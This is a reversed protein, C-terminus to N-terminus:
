AAPVARRLANLLSREAVPKGINEAGALIEGGEIGTVDYASALVFPVNIEQLRAAVPFVLQNRLNLDLLAVDPRVDELLRLAIEVSSAPGLVSHGHQELIMQLDMAIIFEDEVVLVSLSRGEMATIKEDHM